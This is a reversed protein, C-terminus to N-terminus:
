NMNADPVPVLKGAPNPDEGESPPCDTAPFKGEEILDGYTKDPVCSSEAAVKELAAVFVAEDKEKEKVIKSLAMGYPNRFEFSKQTPEHCIRCKVKGIEEAPFQASYTKAFIKVHGPRADASDTAPLLFLGAAFAAAAVGLTRRVASRPSKALM